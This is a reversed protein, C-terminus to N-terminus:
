ASQFLRLARDRQTRHDVIPHPYDAGLTVGAAALELPPAEWPAHAHAAPVRSLEPVWRKVYAADPDFKRGQLVPNFVRFWPQPDTGTSAVWQWGGNNSALDGDVLHRMFHREGHRWDHLLSKTLFSAVIMRARNHMWGLARLQRMGADVVPYGTRGETWAALRAPDDSWALEAYRERFARHEVHPFHFLVHAYFDRWRLEQVLKEASAGLRPDERAAELAAHAVQRPSLTGFVLDASLRSTAPAALVDRRVAYTALGDGIAAGTGGVFRRLRQHAARTGGPWHEAGTSFGLRELTALPHEALPHAALREPAPQPLGIPVRECAHRFPTYTVYPAGDGNVVLGPPVLLRDHFRKVRVGAARLAREVAADRGIRSPEYEDNWYVADAAAARAARVVTEVADGHDLALRSGRQRIADDLAALSDLVFRVRTGAMDERGLVAPESAYFPVVDSDADRIAESLGSNDELRLDKRFWFLVRM